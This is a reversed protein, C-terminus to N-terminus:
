PKMIRRFLRHECEADDCNLCQWPGSARAVPGSPAGAALPGLGALASTLRAAGSGYVVRWEIGGQCMAQRLLGDLAGRAHEGDRQFGDAVWPLDLGTLLTVAYHKQHALAFAHLARDSFFQESYAATVLPTTDAIVVDAERVALVRRAQEYAITAQEHQRPTRGERDCWERLTEPVLAVRRGALRLQAALALALTTKGTSEAGLVAIALPNM